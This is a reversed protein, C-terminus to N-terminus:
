SAILIFPSLFKLSLQVLFYGFFVFIFVTLVARSVRRARVREAASGIGVVM